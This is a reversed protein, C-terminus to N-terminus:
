LSVLFDDIVDKIHIPDLHLENCLSILKVIKDKDISIDNFNLSQHNKFDKVSIGYGIHTDSEVNFYGETLEYITNTNDM